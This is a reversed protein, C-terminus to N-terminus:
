LKGSGGCNKEWMVVPAWFYWMNGGIFIFIQTTTFHGLFQGKKSMGCPVVTQNKKIGSIVVVPKSAHLLAVKEKNLHIYIQM